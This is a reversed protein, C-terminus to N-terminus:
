RGDKPTKNRHRLRCFIDYVAPVLFIIAIVVCMTAPSVAGSRGSHRQYLTYGILAASVCLATVIPLTTKSSM